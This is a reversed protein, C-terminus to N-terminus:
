RNYNHSSCQLVLPMTEVVHPHRKALARQTSSETDAPPSGPPSAPEPPPIAADYWRPSQGIHWAKATGAVGQEWAVPTFYYRYPPLPPRYGLYHGLPNAQGHAAEVPVQSCQDAPPYAPPYVVTVHLQASRSRHTGALFVPSDTLSLLQSVQHLERGGLPGSRGYRRQRDWALLFM